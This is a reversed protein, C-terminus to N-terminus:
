RTAKAVASHLSLNSLDGVFYETFGFYDHNFYFKSLFRAPLRKNTLSGRSKAPHGMDQMVVVM